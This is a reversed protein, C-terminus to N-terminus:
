AVSDYFSIFSFGDLVFFEVKHKENNFIIPVKSNRSLEFFEQARKELWGCDTCMTVSDIVETVRFSRENM